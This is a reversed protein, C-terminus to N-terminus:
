LVELLLKEVVEGLLVVDKNVIAHSAANRLDRKMLQRRAEQLSCGQANRVDKIDHHNFSIFEEVQM